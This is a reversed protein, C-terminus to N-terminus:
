HQHLRAHQYSLREFANMLRLADRDLQLRVWSVRGDTAEQRGLQLVGQLAVLGRTHAVVWDQQSDDLVVTVTVAPLDDAEGDAHQSMQVPQPSLLFRGASAVEQQVMYGVIRVAQGNASLLTDSLEIGRPGIPRRLFDKFHIEPVASVSVPLAEQAHVTGPHLAWPLAALMLLACTACRRRLAFNAQRM